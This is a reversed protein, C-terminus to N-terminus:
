MSRHNDLKDIVNYFEERTSQDEKFSGTLACTTTSSEPKKIGRMRMCMHKGTIFCGAGDVNLSELASVIDKGLQEQLVPRKSLVESLRALKSLGLVGQSECPIYGVYIRYEVPLLHHPCMSFTTIPGEVVMGVDGECPFATKLIDSVQKDTNECGAFIEYYARGVRKPTGGFNGIDINMGMAKLGKIMWEAATEFEKMGVFQAATNRLQQQLKDHCETCLAENTAGSYGNMYMESAIFERGCRSCAMKGKNM